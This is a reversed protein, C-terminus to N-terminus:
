IAAVANTIGRVQFRGFIAKLLLIGFTAMITVEAFTFWNIGFADEKLLGSSRHLFFMAVILGLLIFLFSVPNGGSAPHAEDDMDSFQAGPSEHISTPNAFRTLGQMNGAGVGRVSTGFQTVRELAM